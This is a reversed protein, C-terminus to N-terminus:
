YRFNDEVDELVGEQLRTNTVARLSGGMSIKPKLYSVRSRCLATEEESCTQKAADAVLPKSVSWESTKREELGTPQSKNVNRGSM